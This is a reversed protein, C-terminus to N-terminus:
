EELSLYIHIEGSDGDSGPQYEEFDCCFSRNLPMRCLEMWFKSVMEVVNGHIVFKAYNGKPIKVVEFSTLLESAAETECCVYMDYDANENGQYNTYLGMTKENVKGPIKGNIGAEFFQKWLEGIKEGMDPSENSTRIKLGAAMKEPLSIIEYEM